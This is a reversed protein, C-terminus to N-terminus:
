KKVFGEMYRHKFVREVKDGAEALFADLGQRVHDKKPLDNCVDDMLMWGGPRLLRWVLRCDDQVALANHNGDVMCLDVGGAKIGGYGERRRLVARLFEASNARHLQCNPRIGTIWRNLNLHARHMADEMMGGDLKETMLWPDVGVARADLHTLIHQLCWCLSQGEFCGIELYVIPKGAWVPHIYQVFTGHNRNIFWRRTFQMGTTDLPLTRM